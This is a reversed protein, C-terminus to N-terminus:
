EEAGLEYRVFSVPTITSNIEKQVQEIRAAVTIQTDRIYIQEPLVM